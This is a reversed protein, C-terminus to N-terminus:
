TITNGDDNGNDNNTLNVRNSEYTPLIVGLVLGNKVMYLVPSNGWRGKKNGWWGKPSLVHGVLVQGKSRNLELRSRCASQASM